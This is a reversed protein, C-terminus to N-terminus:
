VSRFLLVKKKEAWTYLRHIHLFQLTKQAVKQFPPQIQNVRFSEQTYSYLQVTNTLATSALTQVTM